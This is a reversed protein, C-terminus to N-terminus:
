PKAAGCRSAEGVLCLVGVCLIGACVGLLGRGSSLFSVQQGVSRGSLHPQGGPMPVRRGEQQEYGENAWHAVAEAAEEAAVSGLALQFVYM